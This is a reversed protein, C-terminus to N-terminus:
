GLQDPVHTGLLEGRQSGGRERRLGRGPDVEGVQMMRDDANPLLGRDEGTFEAAGARQREAVADGIGRARASDDRPEERQQFEEAFMGDRELLRGWEGVEGHPPGACFPVLRIETGVIVLFAGVILSVAFSCRTCPANSAIRMTLSVGTGASCSAATRPIGTLSIRSASSCRARVYRSWPRPNS